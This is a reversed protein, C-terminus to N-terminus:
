SSQVMRRSDQSGGKGSARRYSRLRSPVPRSSSYATEANDIRTPPLVARLQALLTLLLSSPSRYPKATATARERLDFFRVTWETEYREVGIDALMRQDLESFPKPDLHSSM